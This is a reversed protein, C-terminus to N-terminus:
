DDELVGLRALALVEGGDRAQFMEIRIFRARTPAFELWAVGDQYALTGSGAVRWAPREANVSTLIQVRVPLEAAPAEGAVFTVGRVPRVSQPGGLEVAVPWQAVRASWYGEEGTATLLGTLHASGVPDDTWARVQWPGAAAPAGSRQAPVAAPDSVPPALGRLHADVKALLADTRLVTGVGSRAHVSLLMGVPQDDVMLLSGSLGKRLREGDATPLVRLFREGDDDVISVSLRGLTGDGNVSRLTGLGGDRLRRTVNRSISGLTFGCDATIGGALMAVAADDGLDIVATAEGRLGASGERLLSPVSTEAAVHLPLVALCRSGSRTLWAQGVELEPADYSRVVAQQPWAAAAPLLLVGILLGSRCRWRAAM